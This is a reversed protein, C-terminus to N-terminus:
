RALSGYALSLSQIDLAALQNGVAAPAVATIPADAVLPIELAAGLPPNKTIRNVTVSASGQMVGVSMAENTASVFVVGNVRILAGNILFSSEQQFASTLFLGAPGSGACNAEGISRFNIAQMPEYSAAPTAALDNGTVEPLNLLDGEFDIVETFVWGVVEGAPNDESLTVRLWTADANRGNATAAEGGQMGGVITADTSGSERVNIGTEAVVSLTVPESASEYVDRYEVGGVIAVRSGNTLAANGLGWTGAAADLANLRLGAYDAVDGSLPTSNASGLNVCMAGSSVPGCAEAFSALAESAAPVCVDDQATATVLALSTLVLLLAMVLFKKM